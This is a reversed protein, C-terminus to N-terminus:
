VKEKIYDDVNDYLKAGHYMQEARSHIGIYGYTSDQDSLPIAIHGLKGDTIMSPNMPDKGISKLYDFLVKKDENTNVEVFTFYVKKVDKEPAHEGFPFPM